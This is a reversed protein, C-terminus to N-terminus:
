TVRTSHARHIPQTIGGSRRELDCPRGNVANLFMYPKPLGHCYRGCEVSSRRLRQMEDCESIMRAKLTIALRLICYPASPPLHRNRRLLSHSRPLLSRIAELIIKISLGTLGQKAESYVFGDTSLICYLARQMPHSYPVRCLGDKATNKDTEVDHSILSQICYLHVQAASTADVLGRSIPFRLM